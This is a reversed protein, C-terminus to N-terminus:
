LCSLCLTIGIPYNSCKPRNTSYEARHPGRHVYRSGNWTPAEPDPCLCVRDGHLSPSNLYKCLLCLSIYSRALSCFQLTQEKQLWVTFQPQWSIEWSNHRTGAVAACCGPAEDPMDQVFWRGYSVWSPSFSGHQSLPRLLLDQTRRWLWSYAQGKSGGLHM